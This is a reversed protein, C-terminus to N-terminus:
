DISAGSAGQGGGLLPEQAPFRRREHDEPRRSFNFKAASAFGVGIGAGALPAIGTVVGAVALGTGGLVGLFAMLNRRMVDRKRLRAATEEAEAKEEERGMQLEEYQESLEGEEKDIRLREAELSQRTRHGTREERDLRMRKLNWERCEEEILRKNGAMDAKLRQCKNRSQELELTLQQHEARIKSLLQRYAEEREAFVSRTSVKLERQASRMGELEHQLERMANTTEPDNATGHQLTRLEEMCKREKKSYESSLEKGAETDSLDRGEDVLERQLRQKLFGDRENIFLLERIISSASPEDGQWRRVQSGQQVLRGWFETTSSLRTERMTAERYSLKETEALNWMTTVLFVRAAAESGCIKELLTFNRMMAGTVRNDSIRHLYLIGALKMGQRYIQSSIFAIEKLIELDSRWTDDFGPTDVLHVTRGNLSM